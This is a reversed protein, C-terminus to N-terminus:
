LQPDPLYDIADFSITKRNITKVEFNKSVKKDATLSKKLQKRSLLTYTSQDEEADNLIQENLFFCCCRINIKTEKCILGEAFSFVVQRDRWINKRYLEALIDFIRKSISVQSSKIINIFLAKIQGKMEDNKRFAKKCL